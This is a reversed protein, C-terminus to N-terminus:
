VVSSNLLPFFCVFLRRVSASVTGITVAGVVVDAVRQPWDDFLLTLIGLASIPSANALGALVFANSTESANRLAGAFSGPSFVQPLEFGAVCLQRYVCTTLRRPSPPASIYATITQLKFTHRGLEKEWADHPRGGPDAKSKRQRHYGGRLKKEKQRHPRRSVQSPLCEVWYEAMMAIGFVMSPLLVVYIIQLVGADAYTTKGGRAFLASGVSGFGIVFVSRLTHEPIPRIPCALAPIPVKHSPLTFFARAYKRRRSTERM